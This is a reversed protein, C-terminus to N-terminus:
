TQEYVEADKKQKGRIEGVEGWREREGESGM